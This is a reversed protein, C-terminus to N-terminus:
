RGGRNAGQQNTGGTTGRGRGNRGGTTTAGTRDQLRQLRQDEKAMQEGIRTVRQQRLVLLGEIAIVTKSANEVRASEDLLELEKLDVEHVTKLLDRKDEYSASGWAQVLKDFEPDGANQNPDGPRRTGRATMEQAPMPEALTVNTAGRGRNAGGTTAGRGRGRTSGRTQSGTTERQTRLEEAIATLRKQRKAKLADIAKATKVAKEEDAFKRIVTLEDAFQTEATTALARRNDTTRLEWAREEPRAKEDVKKLAENVDPQEIVRALVTNPDALIGLIIAENADGARAQPTATAATAYPAINPLPPMSVPGSRPTQQQANIPGAGKEMLSGMMPTSGMQAALMLPAISISVPDAAFVPTWQQGAPGNANVGAGAPQKAPKQAGTATAPRAATTPKPQQAAPCISLFLVSLVFASRISISSRKVDVGKGISFDTNRGLGPWGHTLWSGNRGIIYRWRANLNDIKEV